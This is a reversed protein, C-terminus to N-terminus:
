RLLNYFNSCTDRPVSALIILSVNGDEMGIVLKKVSRTGTLIRQM